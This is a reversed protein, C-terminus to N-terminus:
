TSPKRSIVSTTANKKVTDCVFDPNKFDRHSPYVNMKFAQPYKKLLAKEGETLNAAYQDMNASTITFKPKEDAYPGPEFGSKGDPHKMGPWKGQFKGTITTYRRQGPCTHCPVSAHPMVSGRHATNAEGISARREQFLDTLRQLKAIADHTLATDSAAAM